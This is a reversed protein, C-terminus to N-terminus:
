WISQLVKPKRSRSNVAEVIELLGVVQYIIVSGGEATQETSM